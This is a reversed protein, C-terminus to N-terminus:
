GRSLRRDPCGLVSAPQFRIRSAAILSEEVARKTERASPGYAGDPVSGDKPCPAAVVEQKAVLRVADGKKTFASNATSGLWNRDRALARSGGEWCASSLWTGYIAM